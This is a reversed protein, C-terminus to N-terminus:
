HSFSSTPLIKISNEIINGNEDIELLTFGENLNNTYQMVHALYNPDGVNIIHTYNVFDLNEQDKLIDEISVGTQLSTENLVKMMNGYGFNYCQISSGIHKNMLNASERFLVTGVSINTIPNQLDTETITIINGYKQKYELPKDTLVLKEYRGQEFNYVDIVQDKWSSFQIQMLNTYYGGSEQTLMSMIINPSVGWKTAYKEVIEYYNEFAHNGKESDRNYEFDLYAVNEETPLKDELVLTKSIEKEEMDLNESNFSNQLTISDDIVVVEKRGDDIVVPASLDYDSNISVQKKESEFNEENLESGVNKTIAHAGMGILVCVATSIVASNVAHKLQSVKKKRYQERKYKRIVEIINDKNSPIYRLLGAHFLENYGSFRLSIINNSITINRSSVHTKNFNYTDLMQLKRLAENNLLYNNEYLSRVECVLNNQDDVFFNYSNNM